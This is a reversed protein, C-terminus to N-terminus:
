ADREKSMPRALDDVMMALQGIVAAAFMGRATWDLPSHHEPQVVLAIFLSTVLMTILVWPAATLLRSAPHRTAHASRM